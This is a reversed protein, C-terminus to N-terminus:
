GNTHSALSVQMAPAAKAHQLLKDKLLDAELVAPTSQTSGPQGHM